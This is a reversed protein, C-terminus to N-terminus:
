IKAGKAAARKAAAKARRLALKEEHAKVDIEYQKFGETDDHLIREDIERLDNIRSPILERPMKGDIRDKMLIRELYERKISAGTIQKFLLPILNTHQTYRLGNILNEFGTLFGIYKPLPKLDSIFVRGVSMNRHVYVPCGEFSKLNMMEPLIFDKWVKRPFNKLTALKRSSIFSGHCENFRVPIESETFYKLDVDYCNISPVGDDDEIISWDRIFNESCFKAIKDVEANMDITMLDRGLLAKLGVV